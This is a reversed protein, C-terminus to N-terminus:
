HGPDSMRRLRDAAAKAYRLTQAKRRSAHLPTESAPRHIAAGYGDAIIIGCDDPLIDLPFDGGVAFYFFDAHALYEPWKGDSRFDQISSKVEVVMFRGARDLGMVDVRRRDGVRFETLPSYGLDRLFRCVGRTLLDTPVGPQPTSPDSQTTQEELTGNM